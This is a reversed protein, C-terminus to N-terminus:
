PAAVAGGFMGGVIEAGEGGVIVGSQCAESQPYVEVAFGQKVLGGFPREFNMVVKVCIHHYDIQKRPYLLIHDSMHKLSGPYAAYHEARETGAVTRRIGPKYLGKLLSCRSSYDNDIDGLTGITRYHGPKIRRSEAYRLGSDYGSYVKRRLGRDRFQHM